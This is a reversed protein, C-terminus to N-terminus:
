HIVDKFAGDQLTLIVYMKTPPPHDVVWLYCVLVIWWRWMIVIGMRMMGQLCDVMLLIFLVCFYLRISKFWNPQNTISKNLFFFNNISTWVQTSKISSQVYKFQEHTPNAVQLKVFINLFFLCPYWNISFKLLFIRSGFFFIPVWKCFVQSSTEQAFLFPYGRTFLKLFFNWSL